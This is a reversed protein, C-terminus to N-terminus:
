YKRQMIEGYILGKKLADEGGEGILEAVLPHLSSNTESLTEQEMGTDSASQAFSDDADYVFISDKLSSLKAFDTVLDLSSRFEPRATKQAQHPVAPPLDRKQPLPLHHLYPEDSEDSIIPRFDEESKQQNLKKKKNSENFFGLIAFLLILIFYFIDGFEMNQNIKCGSM